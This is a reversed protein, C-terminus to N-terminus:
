KDKKKNKTEEKKTRKNELFKKANKSSKDIKEINGNGDNIETILLSTFEQRHGMKKQYLGPKRKFVVIKSSKAHKIVHAKIEAGKIIPLGLQPKDGGIFLVKDFKTSKGEQLDLKQTDIIIGPEVRYQNGSIEVISYM